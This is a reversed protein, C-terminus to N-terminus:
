LKAYDSAMLVIQESYSLKQYILCDDFRVRVFGGNWLKIVLNVGDDTFLTNVLLGGNTLKIPEQYKQIWRTHYGIQLLDLEDVFRYGILRKVFSLLDKKEIEKGFEDRLSQEIEKIIDANTKKDLYNITEHDIHKLLENIEIKNVLSADSKAERYIKEFEKNM